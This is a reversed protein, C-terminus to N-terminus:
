VKNNGICRLTTNSTYNVGCSITIELLFSSIITYIYKKQKITTYSGRLEHGNRVNENTFRIQKRGEVM